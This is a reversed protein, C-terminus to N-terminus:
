LHLFLNELALRKNVNTTSILFKFEEVKEIKQKFAFCDGAALNQLFLSRLYIIIGRLFLGIEERSKNKSIKEALAFKGALDKNFLSEMQEAQEIKPQDKPFFKLLCCRSRITLSLREPFSTVLLFVTKGPPEELTKLFCDQAFSNMLHAGEILATKLLAFQPKYSLDKGLDQMKELWIEKKPNKATSDPNVAPKLHIFDQSQIVGGHLLKVFELAMQKKGLGQEGAFIIAQPVRKNKVSNELFEWQRHQRFLENSFQTM